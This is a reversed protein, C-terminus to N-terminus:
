QEANDADAMGADLGDVRPAPVPEFDMRRVGYPTANPPGRRPNAWSPVQRPSGGRVGTTSRGRHPRRRLAEHGAQGLKSRAGAGPRGDDPDGGANIQDIPWNTDYPQPGGGQFLKM